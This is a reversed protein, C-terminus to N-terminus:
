CFLTSAECQAGTPNRMIQDSFVQNYQNGLVLSYSTTMM